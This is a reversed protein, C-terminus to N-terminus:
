QLIIKFLLTNSVLFGEKTFYINNSTVKLLGYKQYLKAKEFYRKPIDYGFRSLFEDNNLGDSLRLKLMCYEEESGGIGDLIHPANNLFDKINRSYHFRKGLIFSHASPGLGLYEHTNWYKLNHRSQYGPLSFNSIEYQYFGLQKLKECTFLYLDTQKEEDPLNLTSKKFFFPTNPEIKLLYASIHQVDQERCFSITKFLSEQTQSPLGLMIDLSINEFGSKKAQSIIFSVDEPTHNRGLLKLEESNISQLGISLRNIKFNRLKELNVYEYCQPNVEITTELNKILFHEHLTCLIRSLNNIGILSPTGGGFYLTDVTCNLIKGYHAIQKCLAFTYKELLDPTPPISYFDCYPCKKLCFPIHIYLGINKM